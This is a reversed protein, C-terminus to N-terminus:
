KSNDLFEQALKGQDNAIESKLHDKPQHIPDKSRFHTVYRLPNAYFSLVKKARNLEQQLNYVEAQLESIRMDFLTHNCKERKLKKLLNLM